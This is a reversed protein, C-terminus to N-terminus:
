NVSVSVIVYAKYTGGNILVSTDDATWHGEDDIKLTVDAKGRRVWDNCTTITGTYKETGSSWWGGEYWAYSNTSLNYTVSLDSVSSTTVTRGSGVNVSDAYNIYVPYSDFYSSYEVGSDFATNSDASNIKTTGITRTTNGSTVSTQVHSLQVTYPIVSAKKSDDLNATEYNSLVGLYMPSFTFSLTIGNYRNGSLVWYFATYASDRYEEPIDINFGDVFQAQSPDLLTITVEEQVPSSGGDAEKYARIESTSKYIEASLSFAIVIFALCLLAKKM